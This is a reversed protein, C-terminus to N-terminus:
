MEEIEDWQKIFYESTYKRNENFTNMVSEYLRVIDYVGQKNKHYDDRIAPIIKEVTMQSIEYNSILWQETLNIFKEIQDVDSIHLSVKSKKKNLNYNINNQDLCNKIVRLTDDRLWSQSMTVRISLKYKIELNNEETVVPRIRGAGDFFGSLYQINNLKCSKNTDSTRYTKIRKKGDWFKNIFFNSNYKINDCFKRRPQIKEITKVLRAHKERTVDEDRNYIPYLTDSIFNVTDKHQITFDSIINIFTKISNQNVIEIRDKNKNFKYKIYNDMLFKDIYAHMIDNRTYIIITPHIKYGASSKCEKIKFCINGSGDFVGTFYSRNSISSDM